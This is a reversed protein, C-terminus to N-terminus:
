FRILRQEQLTAQIETLRVVARATKLESSVRTCHISTLSHIEESVKLVQKEIGHVPWNKIHNTLEERYYNGLTPTLHPVTPRLALLSSSLAPATSNVPSGVAILFKSM